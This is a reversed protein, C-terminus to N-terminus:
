YVFIGSTKNFFFNSNNNIKNTVQKIIWLVKLVVKRKKYKCLNKSYSSHNFLALLFKFDRINHSLPLVINKCKKIIDMLCMVFLHVNM